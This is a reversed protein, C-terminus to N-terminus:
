WQRCLFLQESLLDQIVFDFESLLQFMTIFRMVKVIFFDKPRVERLIKYICVFLYTKILIKM